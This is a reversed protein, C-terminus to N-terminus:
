SVIDFDHVFSYYFVSGNHEFSGDISMIYNRWNAVPEQKQTETLLALQHHGSKLLDIVDNPAGHEVAIDIYNEHEHDVTLVLYISQGKNNVGFM